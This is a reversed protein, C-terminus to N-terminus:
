PLSTYSNGPQCVQPRVKKVTVGLDRKTAGRVAGEDPEQQRTQVGLAPWHRPRTHPQM